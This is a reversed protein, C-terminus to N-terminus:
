SAFTVDTRATTPVGSCRHQISFSCTGCAAFLTLMGPASIPATSPPTSPCWTPLPRPLSMAVIPPATSPPAAPECTPRRPM